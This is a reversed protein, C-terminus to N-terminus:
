RAHTWPFSATKDLKAPLESGRHQDHCRHSENANGDLVAWNRLRDCGMDGATVLGLDDLSVTMGEDLHPARVPFNKTL